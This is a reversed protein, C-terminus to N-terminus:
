LTWFKESKKPLNGTLIKRSTRKHTWTKQLTKKHGSMKMWPRWPMKFSRRWRSVSVYPLTAMAIKYNWMHFKAGSNLLLEDGIINIAFNGKTETITTTPNAFKDQQQSWQTFTAFLGSLFHSVFSEERLFLKTRSGRSWRKGPDRRLAPLLSGQSRSQPKRQHETKITERFQWLLM